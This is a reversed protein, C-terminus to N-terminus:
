IETPGLPLTLCWSSNQKCLFFYDSHIQSLNEEKKEESFKDGLWDESAPFAQLTGKSRQIDPRWLVTRCGHPHLSWVGRAAAPSGVCTRDTKRQSSQVGQGLISDGGRTEAEVLYCEAALAKWLSICSWGGSEFNQKNPDWVSVNGVPFFRAVALAAAELYFPKLIIM